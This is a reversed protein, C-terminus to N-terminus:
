TGAQPRVKSFTQKAQGSSRPLPAEPFHTGLCLKPVLETLAQPKASALRWALAFGCAPRGARAAEGQSTISVKESEQARSTSRDHDIGQENIQFRQQNFTFVAVGAGHLAHAVAQGLAFGLESREAVDIIRQFFAEFARGADRGLLQVQLEADGIIEEAM